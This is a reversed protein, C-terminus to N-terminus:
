CYLGVLCDEIEKLENVVTRCVAEFHATYTGHETLANNALLASEDETSHALGGRNRIQRVKQLGALRHGDNSEIRTALIRELLFLRDTSKSGIGKRHAISQLEEIVFGEIILKSLELFAKSWENRSGTLPASIGQFRLNRRWWPFRSENWHRVIRRISLLANSYEYPIGELTAQYVGTSIGTMPYVNYSKWYSQEEIPIQSLYYVLTHIQQAENLYYRLSWGGRCNIHNENVEYKENDNKYKSLVEANFFAHSTRTTNDSPDAKVTKCLPLASDEIRYWPPDDRFDWAIYEVSVNEKHENSHQESRIVQIGHMRWTGRGSVEYTYLLPGDEEYTEASEQANATEPASSHATFFFEFARVLVSNSALLYEELPGRIFSVLSITNWDANSSVSVAQQVDGLANFRCYAQHKASWHINALHCYEQLVEFYGGREADSDEPAREFVLHHMRDIRETEIFNSDQNSEVYYARLFGHICCNYLQNQSLLPLQEEPVIITNLVTCPGSAYVILEDAHANEKLLHLHGVGTVWAAHEEPEPPSGELQAMRQVLKRHAYNPHEYDSM